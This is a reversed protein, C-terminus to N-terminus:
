PSSQSKVFWSPIPELYPVVCFEHENLAQLSSPCTFIFLLFFTRPFSGNRLREQVSKKWSGMPLEKFLKLIILLSDIVSNFAPLLDEM